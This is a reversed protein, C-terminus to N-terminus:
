EIPFQYQLMLALHCLKFKYHPWRHSLLGVPCGPLPAGSTRSRGTPLLFVVGVFVGHRRKGVVGATGFRVNCAAKITLKYASRLSPGPM